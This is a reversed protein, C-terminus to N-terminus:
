NGAPKEAHDIVITDYLAVASELKLGLEEIATFASPGSEGGALDNPAWQIQFDYFGALGTKDIVPRGVGHNPDALEEVLRSVPAHVARIRFPPGDALSLAEEVDTRNGVLKTGGRAIVLDYVPLNKREHHVRLQFREALLSQLGRRFQDLSPAPGDPAKAIVRFLAENGGSDNSLVGHKAWAPGGSLRDGVLPLDYAFGILRYLDVHEGYLTNGRVYVDVAGENTWPQPRISVADFTVPALQAVAFSVAALIFPLRM